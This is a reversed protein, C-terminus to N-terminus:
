VALGLATGMKNLVDSEKDSIRSSGIGLIGGERHAEAVKTAVGILWQKLESAQVGTVKTDLIAAVTQLHAIAYDRGDKASKFTQMLGLLEFQKKLLLQEGALLDAADLEAISSILTPALDGVADSQQIADAVIAVGSKVEQLFLIPDVRDALCVGMVAQMPAQLLASWEEATFNERM